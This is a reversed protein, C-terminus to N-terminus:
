RWDDIVHVDARHYGPDNAQHMAVGQIDTRFGRARMRRYADECAFNVGAVLLAMGEAAAFAECAALVREFGASAAPGPRAAAFKVYCAGSGAESGAGRHCVAVGALPGDPRADEHVLVTDGLRQAAVARIERELDLGPYVAGTLARCAALAAAQGSEPLASLRSWGQAAAAVDVVKSMIATLMRPYFGFHQYLSVHKPSQAFTYLGTHTAGARALLDMTPGLLRRAIGRDWLDPRVSLPGFFGVSGWRSVFNSGALRGELEAGLSAQPDARWRTRVWDSDGAFRQPDPLGMFTGFADRFIRDAEDLEGERLPRIVVNM